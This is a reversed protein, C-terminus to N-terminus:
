LPHLRIVEDKKPKIEFDIKNDIVDQIDSIHMQLHTLDASGKPYGLDLVLLALEIFRRYREKLTLQPNSSITWNTVNEYQENSMSIGLENMMDYIPTNKYIGM